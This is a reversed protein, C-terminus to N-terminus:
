RRREGFLIDNDAAAQAAKEEDTMERERFARIARLAHGTAENERDKKAVVYDIAAEKKAQAEAEQVSHCWPCIYRDHQSWTEGLSQGCGECFIPSPKDPMGM